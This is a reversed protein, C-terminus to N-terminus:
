YKGEAACLADLDAVSVLQIGRAAVLKRVEAALLTELDGVRNEETWRYNEADRRTLSRLEESSEAPHTCLFHAGPDLSELWSLLWGKKESAPMDSLMARSSFPLTPHAFSYLFPLAYRECIRTLASVNTEAMHSDFCMLEIGAARLSEAQAVLETYAEDADTHEGALETTAWCMGMDDRLTKGATIPRWRLYEWESTLTCHMGVPIGHQLTMAVAQAIWPCPAMLAAQTLIGERFARAVGRNVASCMGLDDAQVVLQIGSM